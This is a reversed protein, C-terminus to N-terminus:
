DMMSGGGPRKIIMFPSGAGQAATRLASVECSNGIFGRVTRIVPVEEPM